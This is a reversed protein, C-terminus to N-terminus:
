HHYSFLVAAYKFGKIIHKTKMDYLTCFLKRTTHSSSVCTFVLVHNGVETIFPTTPFSSFVSQVSQEHDTYLLFCYHVYNQYGQPYFGIHLTCHNDLNKMWKTYTGYRINSKKLTPIVKKRMNYKFAHFLTWQDEGWLLPTIQRHKHENQLPTFEVIKEHVKTFSEDWSTYEVKPTCSRYKVGQTVVNHFGVLQSFDLLRNTVVMTNWDGFTLAHYVVCPFEKLEDFVHLPDTVNILYMHERYTPAPNMKIEPGVIIGKAYMEKVYKSVTNRSLGTNVAIDYFSM